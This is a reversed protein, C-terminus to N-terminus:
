NNYGFGNRCKVSEIDASHAHLEANWFDGTILRYSRIKEERNTVFHFALLSNILSGVYIEFALGKFNV